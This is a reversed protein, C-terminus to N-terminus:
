FTGSRSQVAIFFLGRRQYPAEGWVVGDKKVLIETVAARQKPSQEIKSLDSYTLFQTFTTIILAHDGPAVEVKEYVQSAMKIDAEAITM